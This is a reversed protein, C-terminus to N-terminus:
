KDWMVEVRLGVKCKILLLVRERIVRWRKSKRKLGIFNCASTCALSCAINTPIKILKALLFSLSPPELSIKNDL